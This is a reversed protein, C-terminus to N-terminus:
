CVCFQEFNANSLEIRTSHLYFLRGRTSIRIRQTRDFSHCIFKRVNSFPKEEFFNIQLNRLM